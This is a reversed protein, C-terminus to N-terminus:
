LHYEILKAITPFDVGADNLTSLTVDNGDPDEFLFPDSGEVKAWEEVELPLAGSVEDTPTEFITYIAGPKWSGIEAEKVALDCLVGLCCFGDDHTRLAGEVQKYAGSTLAEIWMAKVRPDM